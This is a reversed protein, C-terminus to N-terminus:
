FQRAPIPWQLRVPMEPRLGKALGDNQPAVARAFELLNNYFKTWESKDKVM